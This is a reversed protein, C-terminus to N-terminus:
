CGGCLTVRQTRELVQSTPIVFRSPLASRSAERPASSLDWCSGRVLADSKEVGELDALSRGLALHELMGHVERKM